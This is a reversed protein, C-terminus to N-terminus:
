KFVRSFFNDTGAALAEVTKIPSDDLNAPERKAQKTTFTPDVSSAENATSSIRRFSSQSVKLFIKYAHFPVGGRVPALDEHSSEV